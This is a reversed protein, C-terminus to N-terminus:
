RPSSDMRGELRSLRKDVDAIQDTLKEMRNAVPAMKLDIGTVAASLQAQTVLDGRLTWATAIAGVLLAVLVSVTVKANALM